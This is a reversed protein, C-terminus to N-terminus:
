NQRRKTQEKLEHLFKILEPSCNQKIIIIGSNTAMMIYFNTKTEIIRYCNAYRYEVYGDTGHSILYDDFFDITVAGNKQVTQNSYYTKKIQRNRRIYFLGILAGCFFAIIILTLIKSRTDTPEFLFRAAYLLFLAIPVGTIIKARKQSLTLCWRKYESFSYITQTTFLPEM